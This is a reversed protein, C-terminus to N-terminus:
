DSIEGTLNIDDPYKVEKMNDRLLLPSVVASVDTLAVEPVPGAGVTSARKLKEVGRKVTTSNFSLDSNSFLIQSDAIDQSPGFQLSCLPIHHPTRVKYMREVRRM